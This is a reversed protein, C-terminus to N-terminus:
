PLRGSINRPDKVGYFAGFGARAAERGNGICSGDTFVLVQNSSSSPATTHDEVLGKIRMVKKPAPLEASSSSTRQRKASASAQQAVRTENSIHIRPPPNNNAFERAEQETPFSKFVAGSFGKVQVQCAPWSSFVGPQRGVRVGYFKTKAMGFYSRSSSSFPQLLSSHQRASRLLTSAISVSPLRGCWIGNMCHPQVYSFSIFSSLEHPLSFTWVIIVGFKHHPAFVM